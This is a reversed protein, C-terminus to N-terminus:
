MRLPRIDEVRAASGAANTKGFGIHIIHITHNNQRIIPACIIIIQVARVGASGAVAAVRYSCLLPTRQLLVTRDEQWSCEVTPLPMDVGRVTNAVIPRRRNIPPSHTEAVHAEISVVGAHTTTTPTHAQNAIDFLKSIALKHFISVSHLRAKHCTEVQKQLM